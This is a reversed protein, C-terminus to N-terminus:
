GKKPCVELFKQELASAEADKAEKLADLATKFPASYCESLPNKEPQAARAQVAKALAANATAKPLEHMCTKDIDALLAAVEADTSATEVLKKAYSQAAVCDTGSPIEGKALAAKTEDLDEKARDFAFREVKGRETAKGAGEPAADSESRDCACLALALAIAPEHWRM